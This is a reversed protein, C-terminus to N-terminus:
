SQNARVMVLVNLLRLVTQPHILRNVPIAKGKADASMAHTRFPANTKTTVGSRLATQGLGTLVLQQTTYTVGNVNMQHTKLKILM